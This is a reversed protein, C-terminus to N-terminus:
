AHREEPSPLDIEWRGPCGADHHREWATFKPFTEGCGEPGACRGPCPQGDGTGARSKRRRRGAPELGHQEAVRQRVAPALDSLRVTVAEEV